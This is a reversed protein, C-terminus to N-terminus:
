WHYTENNSIKFARFLQELLFVRILQHPFTMKSFCIKEDACTLVESSIGLTGGIIFTISSNYNLSISDIKASFEESSFQKGHLDLCIKYSDKKLHSLIKKGETNKINEIIKDNLKSPLKEDSLEIINLNCYKSLRKSYENIPDKFFSEKIKGICIINISLM